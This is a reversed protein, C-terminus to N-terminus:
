VQGENWSSTRHGKKNVAKVEERLMDRRPRGGRRETEKGSTRAVRLTRLGWGEQDPMGLAPQGGLGLDGHRSYCLRGLQVLLPVLGAAIQLHPRKPMFSHTNCHVWGQAHRVGNGPISEDANAAWM